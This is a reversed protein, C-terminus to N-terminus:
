FVLLVGRLHGHHGNGAEGAKRLAPLDYECVGSGRGSPFGRQRYAERGPSSRGPSGEGSRPRDRMPATFSPFRRGGTDSGPFGGTGCVTLQGDEEGPGKEELHRGIAERAQPARWATFRGPISWSGMTAYPRRWPKRALISPRGEPQVVVALPLNFKKAFYFDRQDHTPVAMVAGTGYEMLVFNGAFIPM